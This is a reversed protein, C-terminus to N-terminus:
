GWFLKELVHPRNLVYQAGPCKDNEDKVRVFIGCMAAVDKRTEFGLLFLHRILHYLLETKAMEQALELVMDKTVPHDDDGKLALLLQPLYKTVTEISKEVAKSDKNEELTNLANCLRVLIEAGSKQKDTKLAEKLSDLLPM